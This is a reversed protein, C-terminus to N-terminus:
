PDPRATLQPTPQLRPESGAISHSHHLSAAVAGFPGRVQSGGSAVPAARYLCFFVVVVVFLLGTICIYVYQKKEVNNTMM